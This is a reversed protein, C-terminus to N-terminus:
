QDKKDMCVALQGYLYVYLCVYVYIQCQFTLVM